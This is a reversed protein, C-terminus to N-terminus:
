ACAYSGSSWHKKVREVWTVRGDEVLNAFGKRLKCSSRDSSLIALIKPNNGNYWHEVLEHKCIPCLAKRM